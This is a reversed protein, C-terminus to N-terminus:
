TCPDGTTSKELREYRGPVLRNEVARDSRDQVVGVSSPRHDGVGSHEGMRGSKIPCVGVQPETPMLAVLTVKGAKGPRPWTQDPEDTLEPSLGHWHICRKQLRM